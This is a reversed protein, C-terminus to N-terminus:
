AEAYLGASYESNPILDCALKYQSVATEYDKDKMARRAADLAEEGRRTYDSRRAREREVVSSASYGGPYGTEGAYSATLLIPQAAVAFGLVAAISNTLPPKTM